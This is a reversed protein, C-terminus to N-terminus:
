IRFFFVSFVCLLFIFYIPLENFDIKRKANIFKTYHKGTHMFTVHIRMKNRLLELVQADLVKSFM